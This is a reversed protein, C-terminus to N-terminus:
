SPAALGLHTALFALCDAQLAVSSSLSRMGHGVGHEARLVVPGPGSSAFQLAACMKRAHLPDVRTDGDAVGLLVPPYAIGPEVRHYPSYALLTSLQEPDEASGYEPVWSPGMGSREYRVMDLLPALCVVAGYKEPHQTVTAGVLLGGNSRGLIGLRGPTTWGTRVLHDAAADFDDFVNQKHPGRGDQHWQEGEERGGRLCAAAYVGGAKAWALAEPLYASVMSAGFGGYGTLITPRPRDPVGSPAVIFM